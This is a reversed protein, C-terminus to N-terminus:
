QPAKAYIVELRGRLTKLYAINKCRDKAKDSCEVTVVYPVGGFKYMTFEAIAGIMGVEQQDDFISIDDDSGTISRSTPYTKTTGPLASQVRLDAAITAVVGAEIDYNLEYWVPNSKNLLVDPAKIPQGGFFGRGSVTNTSLGVVPLRLGTYPSTKDPGNRLSRRGPAANNALRALEPDSWDVKIEAGSQASSPTPALMLAVFFCAAGVLGALAM